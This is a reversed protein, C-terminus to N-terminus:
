EEDGPEIRFYKRYEAAARGRWNPDAVDMAEDNLKKEHALPSGGCRFEEDEQMAANLQQHSTM